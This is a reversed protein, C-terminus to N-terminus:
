RMPVSGTYTDLRFRIRFGFNHLVKRCQVFATYNTPISLDLQPIHLDGLAELSFPELSESYMRLTDPEGGRKDDTHSSRLLKSTLDEIKRDVGVEHDISSDPEGESSAYQVKSNVSASSPPWDSFLLAHRLLKKETERHPTPDNPVAQIRLKPRLDIDVQRILHQMVDMVLFRRVVDLIAGNLFTLLAVFYILNLFTACFYFLVVELSSGPTPDDCGIRGYRMVLPILANIVAASVNLISASTGHECSTAALMASMAVSHLGVRYSGDPTQTFHDGFSEGTLTCCGSSSIRSLFIQWREFQLREHDGARPNPIVFYSSQLKVGTRAAAVLMEYSLIEASLHNWGSNLQLQNQYHIVRTITERSPFRLDAIRTHSAAGGGGCMIRRVVCVAYAFCFKSVMTSFDVQIRISIIHRIQFSGHM